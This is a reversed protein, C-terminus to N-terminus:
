GGGFDTNISQARRLHGRMPPRRVSLALGHTLPLVRPMLSQNPPGVRRRLANM